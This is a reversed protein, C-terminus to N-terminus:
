LCSRDQRQNLGVMPAPIVQRGPNNSSHKSDKSGAELFDTGIIQLGSGTCRRWVQLLNGGDRRALVSMTRYSIPTALRSARERLPVKALRRATWQTRVDGQPWAKCCSGRRQRRPSRLRKQRYGLNGTMALFGLWLAVAIAPASITLWGGIGSM